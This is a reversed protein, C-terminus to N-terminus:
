RLVLNARCYVVRPPEWLKSYAKKTVRHIREIKGRQAVLTHSSFHPRVHLRERLRQGCVPQAASVLRSAYGPHRLYTQVGTHCARVRVLFLTGHPQGIYSTHTATNRRNLLEGLLVSDRRHLRSALFLHINIEVM